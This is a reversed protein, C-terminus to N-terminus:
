LLHRFPRIIVRLVQYIGKKATTMEVEQFKAGETETGDPLVERSKEMYEANMERLHQNLKESDIVLMLETDLYTSRMDWNYSGVISMRDDVVITKTHVAAENMLEYVSCGTGLIKGKNNLYDTCGWPNSGKEVANLIIKVDAHEAAEEMVAYMAQDAIVYPTQIVIDKGEEMLKELTYFMIPEHKAAQTGNNILTISEAPYTEKTWDTEAATGLEPYKECIEQYHELLKAEAAEKKAEKMSVKKEKVCSEEWISAFYEELEQFSKGNGKEPEYVFIERDANIGTKRDGLFIDNSNRGGLLYMTDDTILYKDHMRYNGKLIHFADIPNYVRVEVNEHTCLAKFLESRELYLFENMGDLLLSVKVGREAAAYFAAMMASGSEDARFDFTAFVLSEKAAEIMRLRLVLAEENDDICAIREKNELAATDKSRNELATNGSESSIDAKMSEKIERVTEEAAAEKEESLKVPRLPELVNVGIIVLVALLVVQLLRLIITKM